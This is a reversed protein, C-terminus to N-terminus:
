LLTLLFWSFAISKQQTNIATSKWRDQCPHFTDCFISNQVGQSECPKTRCEGLLVVPNIGVSNKPKKHPSNITQCFSLTERSNRTIIIQLKLLLALINKQCQSAVFILRRVCHSDDTKTPKVSFALCGKKNVSSRLLRDSFAIWVMRPM